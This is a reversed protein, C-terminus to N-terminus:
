NIPGFGNEFETISELNQIMGEAQGGFLLEVSGGKGNHVFGRYTCLNGNYRLQFEFYSVTLGNIQKRYSTFKKIKGYGKFEAKLSSKLQHDSIFYDYEIYYATLLNYQDYFEADWGSKEAQHWKQARYQIRFLGKKGKYTQLTGTAVTNQGSLTLTTVLFLFLLQKKM